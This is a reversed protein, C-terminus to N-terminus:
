NASVSSIPLFGTFPFDPVARAITASSCSIGLLASSSGSGSRIVILESSSPTSIIHLESSSM